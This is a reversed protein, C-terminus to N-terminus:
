KKRYIIGVIDPGANIAIVAGVLYEYSPEIDM